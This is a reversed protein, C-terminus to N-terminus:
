PVIGDDKMAEATFKSRGAGSAATESVKTANSSTKSNVNSNDDNDDNADGKDVIVGATGRGKGAAPNDQVKV